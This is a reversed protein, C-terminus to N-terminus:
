RKAAQLAALQALLAQIQAQLDAIVSSNTAGAVGATQTQTITQRCSKTTGDWTFGARCACNLLGSSSITGDWISNAGNANSCAQNNSIVPDTVCSTKAANVQFGTDCLCKTSDSPNTHSNAPCSSTDSAAAYASYASASYSASTSKYVCNSGNYAYGSMCECKKSLSNYQSMLGLQDSCISSASKCQGSSDLSYGYDCKCNKSTSDYSSMIGIQQHCLIDASVCSGNSVVYGSFCKCSSSVSDYTSM